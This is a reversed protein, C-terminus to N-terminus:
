SLNISEIPPQPADPMFIEKPQLMYHQISVMRQEVRNLLATIPVKYITPENDAQLAQWQEERAEAMEMINFIERITEDTLAQRQEASDHLAFINQIADPISSVRL